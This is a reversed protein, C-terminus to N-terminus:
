KLCDDYCAGCTNSGDPAYVVGSETMDRGCKKCRNKRRNREQERKIYINAISEEAKNINRAYIARTAYERNPGLVDTLLQILVQRVSNVGGAECACENLLKNCNVCKGSDVEIAM